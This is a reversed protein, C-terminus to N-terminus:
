LRAATKIATKVATKVATKIAIKIATKVATKIPTKVATKVAAKIPMRIHAQWEAAPTGWGGTRRGSRPQNRQWRARCSHLEDSCKPSSPFLESPQRFFYQLHFMAGDSAVKDLWRSTASEGQQGGEGRICLQSPSAGRLVQLIKTNGVGGERSADARKLM